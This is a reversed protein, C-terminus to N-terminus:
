RAECFGGAIFGCSADGLTGIGGVFPIRLVCCADAVSFLGDERDVSTELLDSYSSSFLSATFSLHAM